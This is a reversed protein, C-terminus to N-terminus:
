WWATPFNFEWTATGESSEEKLFRLSSGNKIRWAPIKWLHLPQKTFERHERQLM